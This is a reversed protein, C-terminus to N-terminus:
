AFLMVKQSWIALYDESADPQTRLSHSDCVISLDEAEAKGREDELLSADIASYDIDAGYVDLMAPWAQNGSCKDQACSAAERDEELSRAKAASTPKDAQEMDSLRYHSRRYAEFLQLQQRYRLVELSQSVNSNGHLYIESFDYANKVLSCIFCILAAM